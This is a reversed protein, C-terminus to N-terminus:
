SKLLLVIPPFSVNLSWPFSVSSAITNSPIGSLWEIIIDLSGSPLFSILNSVNLVSSGTGVLLLLEM